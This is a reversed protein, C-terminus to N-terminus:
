LREQDTRGKNTRWSGDLGRLVSNKVVLHRWIAGDCDCAVDGDFLSDDTKKLNKENVINIQNIMM